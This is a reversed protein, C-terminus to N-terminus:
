PVRVRCATRVEWRETRAVTGFGPAADPEIRMHAGRRSRFAVGPPRPPLDPEVTHKPVELRYAMLPGRIPGVYPRGCALVAERGGAARVADGLDTFLQWQYAQSRQVRELDDLRPVAAIAVLGVAAVVALTAPRRASVLGVAGSIAVLMMGPLAYRPEGSFGVTQALTAVLAVWALGVAAPGLAAREVRPRRWTAAALAAVGLWLPWLLLPVAQRLSELAPVEAEAPNGPNPIKARDASRMLDGSGLWEPVFWLAPVAVAAAALLRRDVLRRRWLVLALLGLFPWTEVQLLGCAFACALVAYPRGARWAEYGALAFALLLGSIVGHSTYGLFAGCLAMGAVALAGAAVSGGALRRALRFGLWLALVAGARAIAVWVWPAVTEGLPALLVGVAVPLPKFAPGEATHLEGGAIERGWTLWSLPDYSPAPAVVLASLCAVAFAAAVAWIWSRGSLRDNGAPALPYRVQGAISSTPM